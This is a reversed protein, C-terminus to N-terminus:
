AGSDALGALPRLLCEQLPRAAVVVHWRNGQLRQSLLVPTTFRKATLDEQQSPRHTMLVGAM